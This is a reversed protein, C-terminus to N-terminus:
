EECTVPTKNPPPNPEPSPSGGHVPHTPSIDIDACSFYLSPPSKDTMLQRIQLTCQTCTVNPVIITNSFFHPTTDRGSQDDAIQKLLIWNEDNAESFWIEYHGPHDITEEWEITLTQGAKLKTRTNYKRTGCPAGSSKIGSNDTRPPTTGNLKWRTHGLSIFSEFFIILFLLSKM